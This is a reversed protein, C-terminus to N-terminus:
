QYLSLLKVHQVNAKLLQPRNSILVGVFLERECIGCM